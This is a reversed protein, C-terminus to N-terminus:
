GMGRKSLDLHHISELDFEGTMLKLEQATIESGISSFSRITKTHINCSNFKALPNASSFPDFKYFHVALDYVFM